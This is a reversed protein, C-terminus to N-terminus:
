DNIHYLVSIEIRANKSRGGPTSNDAVPDSAGKGEVNMRKPDIGRTVLAWYVANARALSLAALDAPAGQDDTFGTIQIPYTPYKALLDKVADVIKAAEPSLISQKAFFRGTLVLVLRQLDTERDLRTSIGSIGTADEELMRDRARVSMTEVAKDYQPRALALGGEAETLALVTRALADDWHGADFEKHAQQLMSAAAAYKAKAYRPANVTEATQIALEARGIGDLAEARRKEAALQDAMRQHESIAQKKTTDVQESLAQREKARAIATARLRELLTTEESVTALQDDLRAQEDQAVGLEADLEAIRSQAHEVQLIALATKMKIQGMLADRQAGRANGREWEGEARVMLDDAAALLDFARRDSESLTPESRLQELTVLEKPRQRAACGGIASWLLILSACRGALGGDSRSKLVVRGRPTPAETIAEIRSYTIMEFGAM